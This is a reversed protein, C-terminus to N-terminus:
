IHKARLSAKLADLPWANLFMRPHPFQNVYSIHFNLFARKGKAFHQSQGIGLDVTKKRRTPLIKGMQSASAHTSTSFSAQAPSVNHFRYCLSSLLSRNSVHPAGAAWASLTPLDFM